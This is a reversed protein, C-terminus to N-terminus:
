AVLALSRPATNYLYDSQDDVNDSDIMNRM